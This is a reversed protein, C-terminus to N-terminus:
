KKLDLTGPTKEADKNEKVFSEDMLVIVMPSIDIAPAYYFASEDTLVLDIKNNKAVEQTAKTVQETLKQVIMVNAQQLTQYFQNQQQSFEQNLTRYQRKLEAEADPSLSDLYDMDNFKTAVEAVAKEKEVLITEMQKKMGEFAAQEKQGLKSKEVCTKFNVLAIRLPKSQEFTTPATEAANATLSAVLAATLSFAALCLKLHRM